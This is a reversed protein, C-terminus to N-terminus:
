VIKIERLNNKRFIKYGRFNFSILKTCLLFYKGIQLDLITSESDFYNLFNIKFDNKVKFTCTTKSLIRKGVTEKWKLM